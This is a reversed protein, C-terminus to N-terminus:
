IALHENQATLSVIFCLYDFIKFFGSIRKYSHDYAKILIIKNLYAFNM